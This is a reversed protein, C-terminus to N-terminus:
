KGLAKVDSRVENLTKEFRILSECLSKLQIEQISVRERLASVVQQDAFRMAATENGFWVKVGTAYLPLGIVTLAIWIAAKSVKSRLGSKEDYVTTRVDTLNDHCEKSPCDPM